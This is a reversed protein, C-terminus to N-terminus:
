KCMDGLTCKMISLFCICLWLRMAANKEMQLSFVHLLYCKRHGFIIACFSSFQQAMGFSHKKSM